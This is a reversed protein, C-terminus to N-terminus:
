LQGIWGWHARTRSSLSAASPLLSLLNDTTLKRSTAPM